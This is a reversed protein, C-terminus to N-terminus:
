RTRLRLFKGNASPTLTLREGDPGTVSMGADLPGGEVLSNILRAAIRTAAVRDTTVDPEIRLEQGIFYELGVTQLGGDFVPKMSTLGLAPFPGGSLWVDVVSKFYSISMWSRAPLWAVGALGPADCVARAVQLIGRVVPLTREAGALHPGRIIPMVAARAAVDKDLDYLHEAIGAAIAPAPRLGSLDFTMGNVILELWGQDDDRPAIGRPDHSIALASGSVAKIITDADPRLDHASLLALGYM